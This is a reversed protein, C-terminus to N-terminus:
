IWVQGPQNRRSSVSITIQRTCNRRRAWCHEIHRDTEGSRKALASLYASDTKWSIGALKQLRPVLSSSKGASWNEADARSRVMVHAEVPETILQFWRPPMLRSGQWPDVEFGASGSRITGLSIRVGVLAIIDGVLPIDIGFLAIEVGLLTVTNGLMTVIDGLMTVIDGVFAVDLALLAVILTVQTIERCVLTVFGRGSAIMFSVLTIAIGVLTIPVRICAAARTRLGGNSGGFGDLNRHQGTLM